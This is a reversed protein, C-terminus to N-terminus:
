DKDFIPMEDHHLQVDLLQRRTHEDEAFPNSPWFACSIAICNQVFVVRCDQNWLPWRNIQVLQNSPNIGYYQYWDCEALVKPAHTEPWLSHFYLKQIIGFAIRTKKVIRPRKGRARVEVEEKWLTM